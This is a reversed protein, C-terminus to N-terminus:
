LSWSMKQTFYKDMKLDKESESSNVPINTQNSPVFIVYVHIMKKFLSKQIFSMKMLKVLSNALLSIFPLYFVHLFVPSINVVIHAVSSALFYHM